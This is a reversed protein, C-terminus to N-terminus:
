LKDYLKLAQKELTEFHTDIYKNIIELEDKSHKSEIEFNEVIYYSAFKVLGFEDNYSDNECSFHPYLEVDIYEDFIPIELEM